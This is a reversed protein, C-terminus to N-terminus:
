TINYFESSPLVSIFPNNDCNHPVLMRATHNLFHHFYLERRRQQLVRDIQHVEMMEQVVSSAHKDRMVAIIIWKYQLLMTVAVFSSRHNPAPNLPKRSHPNRTVGDLVQLVRDIQHVEMMEQVVSSAHKDRM